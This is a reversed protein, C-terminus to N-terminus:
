IPSASVQAGPLHLPGPSAIWFPLPSVSYPAATLDEVGSGCCCSGSGTNGFPRLAEALFVGSKLTLRLFAAFVSDSLAGQQSFCGPQPCSDLPREALLTLQGQCEAEPEQAWQGIEWKM